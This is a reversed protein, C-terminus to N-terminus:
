EYKGPRAVMMRRMDFNDFDDLSAKLRAPMKQCQKQIHAHATINTDREASQRHDLWGRLAMVIFYVGGMIQAGCQTVYAYTLWPLNVRAHDALAHEETAPLCQTAVGPFALSGNACAM